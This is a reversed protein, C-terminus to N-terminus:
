AGSAGCLRCMARYRGHTRLAAIGGVCAHEVPVELPDLTPGPCWGWGRSCKSIGADVPLFSFSNPCLPCSLFLGYAGFGPAAAAWPGPRVQAGQRCSM